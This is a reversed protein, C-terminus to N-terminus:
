NRSNVHTNYVSLHTYRMADEKRWKREEGGGKEVEIDDYLWGGRCQEEEEVSREAEKGKLKEYEKRKKSGNGRCFERSEKEDRGRKRKKWTQSM